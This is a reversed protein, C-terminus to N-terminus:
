TISITLISYSNRSFSHREPVIRYIVKSKNNMTNIHLYNSRFIQSNRVSFHCQKTPTANCESLSCRGRATEESSSRLSCLLLFRYRPKVNEQLFCQSFLRIWVVWTMVCATSDPGTLVCVCRYPPSLAPLLQTVGSVSRTRWVVSLSSHKHKWPIFLCGEDSSCLSGLSHYLHGLFCLLLHEGCGSSSELCPSWGNEFDRRSVTHDLKLEPWFWEHSSYPSTALPPWLLVFFCSPFERLSRSVLTIIRTLSFNSLILICKPPLVM